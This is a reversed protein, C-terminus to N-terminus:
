ETGAVKIEEFPEHVMRSKSTEIRVFILITAGKNGEPRRDCLGAKGSWLTSTANM